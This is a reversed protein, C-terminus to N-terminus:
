LKKIKDEIKSASKQLDGLEDNLNDIDSSLEHM